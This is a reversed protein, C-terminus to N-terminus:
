TCYYCYFYFLWCKLTYDEKYTCMNHHIIQWVDVGKLQIYFMQIWNYFIKGSGETSMSMDITGGGGGGM